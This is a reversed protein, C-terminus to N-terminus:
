RTRRTEAAPTKAEVVDIQWPNGPANLEEAISTRLTRVIEHLMAPFLPSGALNGGDPAVPFNAFVAV